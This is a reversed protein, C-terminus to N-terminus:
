NGGRPGRGRGGGGWMGRGELIRQKADDSLATSQEIYVKAAAADERMWRAAAM